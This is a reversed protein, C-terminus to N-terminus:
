DELSFAIAVQEGGSFMDGPFVKHGMKVRKGILDMTAKEPEIGLINGMVWPGEDLEVLGIIYPAQFEQPPVYIVTFTQITGKGSLTVVELDQSTCASCVMKPPCTYAGCERCKLGLLRDEKLAEYFTKSTLKYEM